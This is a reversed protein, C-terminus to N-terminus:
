SLLLQLFSLFFSVMLCFLFFRLMGSNWQGNALYVLLSNITFFVAIKMVSLCFAVFSRPLWYFHCILRIPVLSAVKSSLALSFSLSLYYLCLHLSSGRSGFVLHSSLPCASTCHYVAAAIPLTYVPRIVSVYFGVRTREISSKLCDGPWSLSYSPLYTNYRASANFLRLGDSDFAYLRPTSHYSCFLSISCSFNVLRRKRRRSYRVSRVDYM